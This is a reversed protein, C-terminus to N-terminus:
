KGKPRLHAWHGSVNVKRQVKFGADTMKSGAPKKTRTVKVTKTPAKPFKGTAVIM